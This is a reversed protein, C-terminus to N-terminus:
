PLSLGLKRALERLGPSLTVPYPDAERNKRLSEPLQSLQLATYERIAELTAPPSLRRGKKMVPHLLPAGEASEGWLGIVDGTLLGEPNRHRFVQKRGPLTAKGESRKFRPVGEYEELKYACELFPADDSVTLKTGVGFGDIPTQRSILEELRYEDLNGSAFIRIGELGAADLINRVRLAHDHLDGSDLRVGRIPAANGSGKKLLAAVKEAAAETDYTDLLLVTEGGWSEYFHRFAEGEEAHAQVFAHAMTGYLPIGYRLGAQVTATGAFGALYAARAALLGAEAGHARRFGFDVLTKGPAALVMRAAKTAALTSYQLLNIIRTEVLQAEPLPAIVRLFPENEFLLTGEPVAEVDGTFRLASLRDLFEGPFLNLQALEDREAPTCRLTELFELVPELGAAVLYGRGPPLRRVFFEFVAQGTMQHDWYAKMMTLQYLDTLTLGGQGPPPFLDQARVLHCGLGRMVELARSGDEPHVNVARVADTLVVVEYGLRSADKVSNLVCYDTALGGVFLRTVGAEQLRQHLDTGEFASYADKDPLRAKDVWLTGPPLALGPATRAGESGALCHPPWPGGQQKFSCHNEPHWDRSAFVPLGRRQFVALVRNLVPVVADGEPVALAGGPLFDNQVDVALLADGRRPFLSESKGRPM